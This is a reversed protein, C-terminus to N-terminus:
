QSGVIVEGGMIVFPPGGGGVYPYTITTAGVALEDFDIIVQFGNFKIASAPSVYLGCVLALASALGRVLERVKITRRKRRDGFHASM